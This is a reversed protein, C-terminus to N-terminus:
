ETGVRETPASDTEPKPTVPGLDFLPLAINCLPGVLGAFLLTGLGVTGGLLWGIALVSVEVSTRAAWIPWGFRQHLGTMLGDRPGPGMRAGIYLGTALALLAIGGLCMLLGIWFSPAEPLFLMGVDIFPGVVLINGVTGLGPRQRLPIWALLVVLGILTTLIGISIGTRVSLGQSFVTWPDNGVGGRIILACAIGFLVYGVLLQTWRRIGRM